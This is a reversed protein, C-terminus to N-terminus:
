PILHYNILSSIEKSIPRLYPSPCPVLTTFSVDTTLSQLFHQITGESCFTDEPSLQTQTSIRIVDLPSAKTNLAGRGDKHFGDPCSGKLKELGLSSFKSSVRYVHKEWDDEFKKSIYHPLYWSIDKFVNLLVNSIHLPAKPKIQSPNLRTLLKSSLKGKNM